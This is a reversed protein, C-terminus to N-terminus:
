RSIGRVWQKRRKRKFNMEIALRNVWRPARKGAAAFAADFLTTVDSYHQSGTSSAIWGVFYLAWRIQPSKSDTLVRKIKIEAMARVTAAARDLEASLSPLKGGNEHGAENLIRLRAQVEEHELAGKVKGSLRELTGALMKLKPPRAKPPDETPLQVITQLGSEIAKRLVPKIWDHRIRHGSYVETRAWEAYIEKGLDDILPHQKAYIESGHRRITEDVIADSAALAGAEQEVDQLTFRPEALQFTRRMDTLAHLYDDLILGGGRIEKARPKEGSAVQKESRKAM